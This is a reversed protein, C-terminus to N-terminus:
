KLFNQVAQAAASPQEFPLLHAANDILEVHSGAIRSRFEEAYLPPILRDQKGWLILTPATIRHLRKKLGKDPIPWIFKGICAFTWAMRIYADQQAPDIGDAFIQKRVPHDPNKLILPALEPQPTIIYNRIPTDDRWLGMASLLVLKSVRGPNTAAVEAAVMAGFSDGVLVPADLGLKDLLEYHYLVLDWMDDLARLGDPDGATTGPHAPAYVTFNEALKDLFENWFLGYDGHLYVLAPGKGAKMVLTQINGDWLSLTQETVAAM